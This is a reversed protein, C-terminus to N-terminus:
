KGKTEKEEKVLREYAKRAAQNAADKKRQGEGLGYERGNILVRIIFRKEHEPGFESITEYEPTRHLRKQVLEQLLSKHDQYDVKEIDAQLPVAIERLVFDRAAELGLEIFVAGVLAELASGLLTPRQNIASRADGRGVRLPPGLGMDRARRGLLARSVLTARQKSLVGEQSHPRAEFLWFAVFFSILSDGLFELRENDGPLGHEFAYSSHTLAQDFLAIRRARVGCSALFRTLERRRERSIEPWSAVALAEADARQRGMFGSLARVARRLLGGSKGERKGQPDRAM